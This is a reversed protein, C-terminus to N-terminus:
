FPAATPAIAEPRFSGALSGDDNEWLSAWLTFGPVVEKQWEGREDKGMYKEITSSGADCKEAMGMLYQAVTMAMEPTLNIRARKAPPNMGQPSKNERVSLRLDFAPVFARSTTTM